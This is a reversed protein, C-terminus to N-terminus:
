RRKLAVSCRRRGGRMSALPRLAAAAVAREAQAAQREEEAGVDGAVNEGDAGSGTPSDRSEDRSEDGEPIPSECVSRVQLGVTPLTPAPAPNSSRRSSRMPSSNPTGHRSGGANNISNAASAGRSRSASRARELRVAQELQDLLLTTLWTM